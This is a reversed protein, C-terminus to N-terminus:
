LFSRLIKIILAQEYRSSKPIIIITLLNTYLGTFLCLTIGQDCLEGTTYALEERHEQRMLGPYISSVNTNELWVLDACM